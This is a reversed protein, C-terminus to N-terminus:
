QVLRMCLLERADRLYLKGDAYAPNCWNKGCAQVRSFEQYQAPNAAILLLEGDDSLVLINKGMVLMGAYQRIGTGDKSWLAKGSQVDVCILNKNPGVGYLARDVIVPTAFNIAAGKNDWAPSATFSDGSKEVDFALLGLQHSSVIVLNDVVVPTAAHRGLRTSLPVRWLLGGNVPDLGLLAIATFAVVQRKGAITALIPPAYGPMDSQSKWVIKGTKKEFCVIGAGPGGAQAILHDGDILPSATYGHRSAGLAPGKEGIFIAGFDKVYDSEWVLKGDDASFCKLKGRCTQAYVLGDDATPTTRPGPQSQSDRTVQDLAVSWLEKGTAADAAHLVEQESVNDVSFVRGKMVIPSAVSFGAETHWVLRPSVPLAAPVAEGGPVHGDRQPGRWQPWDAGRAVTFGGAILRAGLCLAAM